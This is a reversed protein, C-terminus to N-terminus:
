LIAAKSAHLSPHTTIVRIEGPDGFLCGELRKLETLATIYGGAVARFWWRLAGRISSARLEPTDKDTGALFMPTVVKCYMPDM